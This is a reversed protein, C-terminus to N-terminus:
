PKEGGTNARDHQIAAIICYLEALEETPAHDCYVQDTIKRMLCYHQNTSVWHAGERIHWGKPRIAKLADRSRTYKPIEKFEGFWEFKDKGSYSFFSETNKGELFEWGKLICWVRADIEDLMATDDVKASSIATLLPNM